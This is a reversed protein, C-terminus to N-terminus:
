HFFYSIGNQKHDINNLLNLLVEFLDHALSMVKCVCRKIFNMDLSHGLFAANLQRRGKVFSENLYLGAGWVSSYYYGM